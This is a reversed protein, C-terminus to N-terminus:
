VAKAKSRLFRKDHGRTISTPLFTFIEKPDIRVLGKVIKFCTIMDTIDRRFALTPLKLIKLREEYPLEFLGSIMKTARRQVAEVKKKDKKSHPGWIVSRYELYPRVFSKYLTSITTADRTKFSKKIIGLMQNAKKVAFSTHTHFRMTNDMMVGLDKEFEISDLEQNHLRYKYPKERELTYFRANKPTLPCNGTWRGIRLIQLTM